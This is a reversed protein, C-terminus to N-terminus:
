GTSRESDLLDSRTLNRRFRAASRQSAVLAEEQIPKSLYDDMGAALYSERDSVMANATMAVIFPRPAERITAAATVDDLYAPLPRWQRSEPRDSRM